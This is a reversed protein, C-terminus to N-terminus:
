KSQFRLPDLAAAFPGPDDGTAYAAVIEAVLPALLWGNRRPALAVSLGPAVPGALPLGDPSAGRVGVRVRGPPAGGAAPWFRAAAKLLGATAAPDATLDRVGPEMTAGVVVGGASPVIYAGEGRVVCAPPALALEVLQGRVPAVAGLAAEAEPAEVGGVGTALVVHDATLTGGGPFRVGAADVRQVLGEVRRAGAALRTLAAAPQLRWDEAAFVGDRRREASFGLRQLGIEVADATEGAWLAGDRVLQVGVAAALAPWRDRAGRLLAARAADAGDLVSEMAPALMGAAVASASRAGGTDVLTVSWGRATFVAACACGLAGAGVVIVSRGM